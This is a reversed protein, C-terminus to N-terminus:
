EMKTCKQRDPFLPRDKPFLKQYAVFGAGVCAILFVGVAALLVTRKTRGTKLKDADSVAPESGDAQIEGESEESGAREPEDLSMRDLEIRDLEAAKEHAHEASEETVLDWNFEDDFLVQEEIGQGRKFAKITKPKKKEAM